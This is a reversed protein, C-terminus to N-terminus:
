RSIRPSTCRSKKGSFGGKQVQRMIKWDNEKGILHVKNWLNTFGAEWAATMDQVRCQKKAFGPDEFIGEWGSGSRVTEGM